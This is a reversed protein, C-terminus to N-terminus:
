GKPSSSFIFLLYILMLLSYLSRDLAFKLIPLSRAIFARSGSFVSSLSYNNSNYLFCDLLISSMRSSNISHESWILLNSVLFSSAPASALDALDFLEKLLEAFSSLFASSFLSFSTWYSVLTSVGTSTGYVGTSSGTSYTRFAGALNAGKHTCDLVIKWFIPFNQFIPQFFFM